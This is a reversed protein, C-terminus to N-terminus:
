MDLVKKKIEAFSSAKKDKFISAKIVFKTDLPFESIEAIISSM